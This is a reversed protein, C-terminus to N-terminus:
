HASRRWRPPSTRFTEAVIIREIGGAQYLEWAEEDSEAEVVDFGEAELQDRSRARLHPDPGSVLVIQKSNATM